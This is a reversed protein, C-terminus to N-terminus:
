KYQLRANELVIHLQLTGVNQNHLNTESGSEKKKRITLTDERTNQTRTQRDKFNRTHSNQVHSLPSSIQCQTHNLSRRSTANENYAHIIQTFPKNDLCSIQLLPAVKLSKNQKQNQLTILKPM